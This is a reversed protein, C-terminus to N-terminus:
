RQFELLDEVQWHHDTLNTLACAIRFVTWAQAKNIDKTGQEYDQYTRLSVGAADAVQKQTIWKGSSNRARQLKTM